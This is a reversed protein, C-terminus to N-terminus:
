LGGPIQHVITDIDRQTLSILPLMDPTLSTTVPTILNPPTAPSSQHQLLSSALAHLTPTEFLTRVSMSYGLRRLREIMGVAILSNGGLMFFNDDRGIREVKLLESWLKSLLKESDSQPPVYDAQNSVVSGFGYRPLANRDIKGRLTLPLHDLWVFASPIMYEPLSLALYERLSSTLQQGSDSSVYAVLRKDDGDGVALVAANKVLEHGVLQSEIESPEIRYGRIKIQFDSRGLLELNGDPLYRVVDGTKFMRAGAVNSFPDPMFREETIDPRNLCGTCIGHGGIYLEGIAGIPVPMHGKGLVYCRINPLPRGIPLRDFRDINTTPVYALAALTTETSGYRHVLRVPGGYRLIESYAKVTGHDAGGFLYKLTSLTGGIIFAYKNLLPNTLYLTTVQNYVLAEALRHPDLVIDNDIIVMRAGRFLSIWIEFASPTHSPNTTFAVRDSPDIDALGNAFVRGVVACHPICVAKPVGTTGSTYMLYATNSSSVSISTELVPTGEDMLASIDLRYLSIGQMSPTDSNADTVFLVARSDRLIFAQRGLPSRRDIVVYAAGVKLVALQAVILEISRGLLIAVFNGPNVGTKVFHSALRSALKNLEAYTIEQENHVIAVAEPTEAVQSEFMHHICRDTPYEADTRNWIELLLQKEEPSLIDFSDVPKTSNITMNALATKYYGVIRETAGEYYLECSRRIAVTLSRKGELLHLELDCGVPAQDALPIDHGIDQLYFAAQFRPPTTQTLTTGEGNGSHSIEAQSLAQDVRDILQLSTPEGTLDIHALLVNYSQEEDGRRLVSINVVEQASLRSVVLAWAALLIGLNSPSKQEHVRLNEILPEIHISGTSYIDTPVRDLTIHNQAESPM